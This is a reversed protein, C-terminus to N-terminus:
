SARGDILAALTDHLFEPRGSVEDPLYDLLYQRWMAFEEQSAPRARCLALMTDDIRGAADTADKEPLMGWDHLDFLHNHNHRAAIHAAILRPVPSTTTNNSVAM